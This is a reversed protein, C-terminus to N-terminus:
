LFFYATMPEPVLCVPRRDSALCCGFSSEWSPVPRTPGSYPPSLEFSRSFCDRQSSQQVPSENGPERPLEPLEPLECAFRAGGSPRPLPQRQRDRKWKLWSRHVANLKACLSAGTFADPLSELIAIHTRILRLWVVRGTKDFTPAAGSKNSKQDPISSGANSWTSRAVHRFLQDERPIGYGEHVRGFCLLPVM